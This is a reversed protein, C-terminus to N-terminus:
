ATLRVTAELHDINRTLPHRARWPDGVLEYKVGDVIVADGTAIETGAPLFLDWLTDSLEGSQNAEDSARRPPKQLECIAETQTETMVPDGYDNVEGSDVRRVVTCPRNLLRAALV